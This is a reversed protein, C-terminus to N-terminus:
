LLSSDPPPSAASICAPYGPSSKSLHLSICQPPAASCTSPPATTGPSSKSLHLSICQPPAASCTSPPATTSCSVMSAHQTGLHARQSICASANHPLLLVPLPPPQPAALSWRSEWLAMCCRSLLTEGNQQTARVAWRGGRRRGGQRRRGRKM